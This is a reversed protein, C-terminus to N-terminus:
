WVCGNETSSNVTSDLIFDYKKGTAKNTYTMSNVSVGQSVMEYSGTVKGNSVELWDATALCPGSGGLSDCEEKETVLSIASKSKEYKVFGGSWKAQDDYYTRLEFRIPRGGGSTFCLVEANVGCYAPISIIYILFFIVKKM